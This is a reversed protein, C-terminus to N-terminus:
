VISNSILQLLFIIIIGVRLPLHKNFKLKSFEDQKELNFLTDQLNKKTGIWKIKIKKFFVPNNQEIIKIESASYFFHGQRPRILCHIPLFNDELSQKILGLSPTLGGIEIASCLEIRDAGAQYANKISLSSSACVEVIM